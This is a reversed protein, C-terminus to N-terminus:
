STMIRDYEESAETVVHIGADGLEDLVGRRGRQELRWPRVGKPLVLVRTAGGTADGIDFAGLVERMDFDSLECRMVLRGNAREMPAQGDPAAGIRPRIRVVPAFPRVLRVGERASDQEIESCSQVGANVAAGSSLYTQVDHSAQEVGSELSGFQHGELSRRVLLTSPRVM